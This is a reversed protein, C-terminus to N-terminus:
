ERAIAHLDFQLIGQSGMAFQEISERLRINVVEKRIQFTQFLSHLLWLILLHSDFHKRLQQTSHDLTPARALITKIMIPVKRQVEPNHNNEEQKCQSRM